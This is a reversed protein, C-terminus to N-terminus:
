PRTYIDIILRQPDPLTSVRFPRTKDLGVAWQFMGEFDELLVLEKIVSVNTPTFRSPGTYGGGEFGTMWSGGAIVLTANGAVAVPAGEPSNEPDGSVYNVRYGPFTGTGEFEIVVREFCLHQGTRIDAGILGSLQMPFGVNVESTGGTAPCPPTTTSTPAVTAPTTPRTTTPVTAPVTPSTTQGVTTAVTPMVTVVTPSVVGPPITPITTGPSSTAVTPPTTLPALSANSTTPALVGTTTTTTTTTVGPGSLPKSDACGTFALVVCMATVARKTNVPETEEESPQM